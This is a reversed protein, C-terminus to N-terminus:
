KLANRAEKTDISRLAFAANSKVGGNPDKLTKILAPVADKAEEGYRALELAAQSRERQVPSSLQQILRPVATEAPEKCGVLLLIFFVFLSVKLRKPKM